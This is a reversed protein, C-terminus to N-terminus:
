CFLLTMGWKQIFRELERIIANELDKESYIDKLNLFDLRFFLDTTMKNEETLLKLDNIITKEPKHFIATREFLNSDIRNRLTRISQNENICMTVYFNRKISIDIKIIEIFHSWSLKQSLTAFKDFDEFYEVM